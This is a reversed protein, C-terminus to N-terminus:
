SLQLSIWQSNLSLEEKIQYHTKEQVLTTVQFFYQGLLYIVDHWHFWIVRWDFCFEDIHLGRMGLSSYGGDKILMQYVTQNEAHFLFFFDLLIVFIM